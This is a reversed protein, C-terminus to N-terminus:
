VDVESIRALMRATTAPTMAMAQGPTVTYAHNEQERDVRKEVGPQPGRLRKAAAGGPRDEAAQQQTQDAPASSSPM